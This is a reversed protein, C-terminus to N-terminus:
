SFIPAVDNLSIARSPKKCLEAETIERSERFPVHAATLSVCEGRLEFNAGARPTSYM